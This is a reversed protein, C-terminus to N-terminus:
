SIHIDSMTFKTSMFHTSFDTKSQPRNASFIPSRNQFNLFNVNLHSLTLDCSLFLDLTKSYLIYILPEYETLPNTNKLGNSIRTSNLFLSLFCLSFLFFYAIPRALLKRKRNETSFFTPSSFHLDLTETSTTSGNLKREDQKM